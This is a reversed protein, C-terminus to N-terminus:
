AAPSINRLTDVEARDFLQDVEVKSTSIWGALSSALLENVQKLSGKIPEVIVPSKESQTLKSFFATTDALVGTTEPLFEIYLDMLKSTTLEKGEVMTLLNQRWQVYSQLLRKNDAAILAVIDAITGTKDHINEAPEPPNIALQGVYVFDAKNKVGPFYHEGQVQIVLQTKATNLNDTYIQRHRLEKGHETFSLTINIGLSQTLARLVSAPLVTTSQRLFEKSTTAALGDFTERYNLPHAYIEDVAIQRLVFAMCEVIESKRAGSLLMGMREVPTLYAQQQKFKPYYAFFRELVKKLLVENTRSTNKLDDILAVALAHFQEGGINIFNLPAVQKSQTAPTSTFFGTRAM